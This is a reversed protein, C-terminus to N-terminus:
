NPWYRPFFHRHWVKGGPFFRCWVVLQPRGTYESNEDTGLDNYLRLIDHRYFRLKFYLPSAAAVMGPREYNLILKWWEPAELPERYDNALFASFAIADHLHRGIGKPNFSGAFDTFAEWLQRGLIRRTAPLKSAIQGFRKRFLAQSFHQGPGSALTTFQTVETESLNYEKTAANPDKILAERFAQDTYLRALLAQTTELEM